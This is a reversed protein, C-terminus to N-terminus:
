PARSAADSLAEPTPTEVFSIPLETVADNAFIVNRHLNNGAGRAGTWEYGVFSTFSCPDDADRAAEQIERWPERAAELCHVGGEGCFGHREARSATWNMYFFAARPWRRYVRCVASDYGPLLPTNCIRWEGLLEAHDTVAAFDLPRALRVRRLPQGASDFPQIGIEEGRAFRYADRPLTRTQQTSADLSFLTHVHLDGFYPRRLPDRDPCTGAAGPSAFTAALLAALALRAAAHM